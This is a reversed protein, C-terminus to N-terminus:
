ENQGNYQNREGMEERMKEEKQVQRERGEESKV